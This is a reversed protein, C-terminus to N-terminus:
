WGFDVLTSLVFYMSLLVSLVTLSIMWIEKCRHKFLRYISFLATVFTMLIMFRRIWIVGSMAAMMNTSGGLLLLIGMHLWHHSSAIFSFLISFVSTSAKGFKFNMRNAGKIQYLM